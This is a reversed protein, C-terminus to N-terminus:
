FSWKSSIHAMDKSIGNHTGNITCNKVTIGAVTNENEKRGLSGVSIRHGPSCTINFISINFSGPGISVCDDGVGITSSSIMINTSERIHIRDANPNDWWDIIGISHITINNSKLLSVHFGMSNLLADNRIIQGLGESIM